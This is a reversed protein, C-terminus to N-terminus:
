RFRRLVDRAAAEGISRWQQTASRMFGKGRVSYSRGAGDTGMYGYEMRRAYAATWGIWLPQDLRTTAIVLEVPGSGTRPMGSHSAAVSNRLFGTDVPMKGGQSEPKNAEEMVRQATERFHALAIRQFKEVVAQVQAEFSPKAM